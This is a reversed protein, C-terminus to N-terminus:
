GGVRGKTLLDVITGFAWSLGTLVAVALVCVALVVSTLRLTEARTPWSVKKLERKVEAFYGKTGRKSHPIPISGSPKRTEDMGNAM